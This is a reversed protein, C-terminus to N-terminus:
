GGGGGVRSFTAMFTVMLLGIVGVVLWLFVRADLIQRTRNALLSQVDLLTILWLAAAGLLLIVGPLPSESSSLATILLTTGGLLWLLYTLGRAWATAMRGLAAHGAGPLLVTLLLVVPPTARRDPAPAAEPGTMPTACVTCRALGVLNWSQCVECRWEIEGEHRRFRGGGSTLLEGDQGVEAQGHASTDQAAPTASTDAVADPDVGPEPLPEPEDRLSALCQSCWQAEDPNRANCTPCRV